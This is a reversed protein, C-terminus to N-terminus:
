QFCVPASSNEYVTTQHDGQRGTADTVRLGVTFSSSTSGAGKSGTYSYDNGVFGGDNTWYYTYPPTGDSVSAYWTCTAGPQIQTPGDISVSSLPPPPPPVTIRSFLLRNASGTGIDGSLEGTTSFTTLLDRIRAQNANWEQQLLLAAVGATLPAAFSTGFWTLTDTDSNKNASHVASGPAFLTILSGYNSAGNLFMSRQDYRDSAGVVILGRARNARDQFADVGDNGAAKIAIVGWSMAGELADRMGFSGPVDGISVNM